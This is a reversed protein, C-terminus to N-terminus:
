GHVDDFLCLKSTMHCTSQSATAVRIKGSLSYKSEKLRLISESQFIQM